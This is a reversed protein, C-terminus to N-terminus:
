HTLICETHKEAETEIDNDPETSILIAGIVMWLVIVIKIVDHVAKREEAEKEERNM